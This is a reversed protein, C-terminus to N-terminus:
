TVLRIKSHRREHDKCNGISTFTKSCHNCKFPKEGTHIRYHVYLNGKEAFIKSCGNFPCKHLNEFYHKAKKHMDLRNARAFSKNCNDFDCEFRKTNKRPINNQLIQQDSILGDITSNHISPTAKLSM